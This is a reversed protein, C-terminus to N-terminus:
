AALRHAAAEREAKPLSRLDVVPLRVEFPPHVVQVPEGDSSQFTTRWAEHRRVIETLSRELALTDLPGQRRVTLPENYLPTDPALQNHLWLQKQASTLPFASGSARKAARGPEKYATESRTQIYEELLQRRKQESLLTDTM